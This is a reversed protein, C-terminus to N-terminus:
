QRSGIHRQRRLQQLGQWAGAGCRCHHFSTTLCPPPRPPLAPVAAAATPKIVRVEGAEGTAGGADVAPRPCPRVVGPTQLTNARMPRRRASSRPRCPPAAALNSLRRESPLLCAPGRACRSGKRRSPQCRKSPIQMLLPCADTAAPAPPAALPGALWRVWERATKRHGRQSRWQLARAHRMRGGRLRRHRRKDVRRNQSSSGNKSVIQGREFM